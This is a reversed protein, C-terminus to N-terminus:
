RQQGTDDRQQVSTCRQLVHADLCRLHWRDALGRVCSFGKKGKRANCNDVNAWPVRTDRGSYETPPPWDPRTQRTTHTPHPHPHLPPRELKGATDFFVVRYYSAIYEYLLCLRQGYQLEITCATFASLAIGRTYGVLIWLGLLCTQIM